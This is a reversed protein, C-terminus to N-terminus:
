VETPPVPTTLHAVSAPSWVQGRVIAGILGAAVTVFAGLALAQEDTLNVWDFATALAIAADVLIILTGVGLVVPERDTLPATM